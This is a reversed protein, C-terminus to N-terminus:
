GSSGGRTKKGKVSADELAGLRELEALAAVKESELEFRMRERAESGAKDQLWPTEDDLHALKHECGESERRLCAIYSDHHWQSAWVHGTVDTFPPGALPKDFWYGKEPDYTRVTTVADADITGPGGGVFSWPTTSM